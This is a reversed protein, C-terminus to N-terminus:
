SSAGAFGSTLGVGAMPPDTAAADHGPPRRPAGSACRRRNKPAISLASAQRVHGGGAGKAIGSGPASQSDSHRRDIRRQRSGIRVKYKAAAVRLVGPASASARSVGICGYRTVVIASRTAQGACIFRLALGIMEARKAFDHRKSMAINRVCAARLPKGIRMERTGASSTFILREQDSFRSGKLKPLSMRREEVEGRARPFSYVCGTRIRGGPKARLVFGKTGGNEGRRTSSFRIM